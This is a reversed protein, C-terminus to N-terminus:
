PRTSVVTTARSDPRNGTSHAFPTSSRTHNATDVRWRQLAALNVGVDHSSQVAGLEKHVADHILMEQHLEYVERRHNSTHQRKELRNKAEAKGEGGASVLKRNWSLYNKPQGMQLENGESCSSQSRIEANSYGLAKLRRIEFASNSRRNAEKRDHNLKEVHTEFQGRLDREERLCKLICPVYERRARRQASREQGIFGTVRSMVVQSNLGKLPDAPHVHSRTSTEKPDPNVSSATIIPGPM